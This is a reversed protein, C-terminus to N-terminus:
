RWCCATIRRRPSLVSMCIVWRKSYRSAAIDVPSPSIAFSPLSYESSGGIQSGLTSMSSVGIQNDAVFLALGEVNLRKAVRLSSGVQENRLVIKDLQIKLLATSSEETLYRLELEEIEVELNNLVAVKLRELTSLRGGGGAEEHAQADIPAASELLHPAKKELVMAEWGRLREKKVRQRRSSSVTESAPFEHEKRVRLELTIKSVVIGITKVSRWEVAVRGIRGQSVVVPLNYPDLCGREVELGEAEVRTAGLKIQEEALAIWQSIKSSLLWHVM